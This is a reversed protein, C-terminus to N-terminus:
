ADSKEAEKQRFLIIENKRLQSKKLETKYTGKHTTQETTQRLTSRITHHTHNYKTNIKHKRHHTSNQGRTNRKGM